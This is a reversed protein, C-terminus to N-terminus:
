GVEPPRRRTPSGVISTSSTPTTARGANVSGDARRGGPTTGAPTCTRGGDESPDLDLFERAVDRLLMRDHSVLVVGGSHGRLRATLFALGDADLHSTPEDLILIDHQGVLLCALRIRYRQGVSLTSLSRDRDKCARADLAMDIRRDVDWAGLSTAVELAAVYAEDAGPHGVSLAETARDLRTVADYAPHAAETIVSGVTEGADVSMSQRSLGLAGVRDLRGTDPAEVGALVHLLTTKGRGNEGVIALRSRSTM